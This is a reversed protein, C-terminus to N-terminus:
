QEGYYNCPLLVSGELILNFLETGPVIVQVVYVGNGEYIDRM